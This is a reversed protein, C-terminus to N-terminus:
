GTEEPRLPKPMIEATQVMLEKLKTQQYYIPKAMKKWKILADKNTAIDAPKPPLEISEPNVPLKGLPINNELCHNFVQYVPENVVWETKQCINVCDYVIPMEHGRDKIEDLINFLNEFDYIILNQNSM